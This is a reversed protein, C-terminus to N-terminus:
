LLRRQASHQTIPRHPRRSSKELTRICELAAMEVFWTSRVTKFITPREDRPVAVWWRRVLPTQRAWAKYTDANEKIIAWETPAHWGVDGMYERMIQTSRHLRDLFAIEKSLDTM